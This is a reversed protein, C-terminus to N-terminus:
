KGEKEGTVLRGKGEKATSKGEKERRPDRTSWPCTISGRIKPHLGRSANSGNRSGTGGGGKRELRKVQAVTGQKGHPNQLRIQPNTARQEKGKGKGKRKPVRTARPYTIPGRGM